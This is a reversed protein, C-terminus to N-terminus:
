FAWNFTGDGNAALYFETERFITRRLANCLPDDNAIVHIVHGLGLLEDVLDVLHRQAGGGASQIVFCIKLPALHNM